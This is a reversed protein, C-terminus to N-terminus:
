GRRRMVIAIVVLLATALAGVGILLEIGLPPADDTTTIATTPTTTSTTTTSPGPLVIDDPLPRNPEAKPLADSSSASGAIAYATDVYGDSNSDPITWTDFYNESFVNGT